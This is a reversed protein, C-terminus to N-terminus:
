PLVLVSTAGRRVTFGGLSMVQVAGQAHSAVARLDRERASQAKHCDSRMSTVAAAQAASTRTQALSPTGRAVM